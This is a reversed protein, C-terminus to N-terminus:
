QGSRGDAGHGGGGRDGAVLLHRDVLEARGERLDGEHDDVQLRGSTGGVVAGDGLDARDLHATTLDEALELGEDIRALLDRGVDADQGADGRGHHDRGRPDAGDQGAKELEGPAGHQDGVVGREVDAEELGGACLVRDRPRRRGRDVGGHEGTPQEAPVLHGVALEGRQGRVEGGAGLRAVTRQGVRPGRDVDQVAQELAEARQADRRQLLQGSEGPLDIGLAPALPVQRVADRRARADIEEASRAVLREVNARGAIQAAAHAAVEGRALLAAADGLHDTQCLADLRDGAGVGELRGDTLQAQDGLV